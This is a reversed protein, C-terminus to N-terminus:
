AEKDLLPQFYHMITALDEQNNVKIKLKNGNANEYAVEISQNKSQSFRNWLFQIFSKVNKTTVVVKVVGLLTDGWAKADEPIATTPVLDAREVEDLQNLDQRLRRTTEALAAEDLQHDSLTITFLHASM